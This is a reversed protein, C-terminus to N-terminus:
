MGEGCQRLRREIARRLGETPETCPSYDWGTDPQANLRAAAREPDQLRERDAEIFRQAQRESLAIRRCRCQDGVPPTWASWIPDDHRAVMGDM